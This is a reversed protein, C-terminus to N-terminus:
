IGVARGPMQPYRIVDPATGTARLEHRAAATDIRAMAQGVAQHDLTVPITVQLVPPRDGPQGTHPSSARAGTREVPGPSIFPPRGRARDQPPVFAPFPAMGRPPTPFMAVTRPMAPGASARTRTAAMARIAPSAVGARARGTQQRPLPPAAVSIARGSPMVPAVTTGRMRYPAAAIPAHDRPMLSTVAASATRRQPMIAAAVADARKWSAPVAAGVPRARSAVRGAWPMAAARAPPCPVAAKGRAPDPLSPLAPIVPRTMAPARTTGQGDNRCPMPRPMAYGGGNRGGPASAPPGHRAPIRVPWGPASVPRSIPRRAPMAPTPISAAKAGPAGPHPVFVVSRQGARAHRTIRGVVMALRGPMGPQGDRPLRAIVRSIEAM